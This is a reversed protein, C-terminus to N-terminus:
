RHQQEAQVVIQLAEAVQQRAQQLYPRASPDAERENLDRQAAILFLRANEHRTSGSATTDASTEPEVHLRARDYEVVRGTAAIVQDILGIAQQDAPTVGHRGGRALFSRAMRLDTIAHGARPHPPGPQALAPAAVTSLVVAAMLTPLLNFRLTANREPSHNSGM